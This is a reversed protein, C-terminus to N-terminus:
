RYITHLLFAWEPHSHPPVERPEQPDFIDQTNDRGNHWRCDPNGTDIMAATEAHGDTFAYNGQGQHWFGFWGGYQDQASLINDTVRLDPYRDRTETLLITHSTRRVAITPRKAEEDDLKIRWLLHGNLAWNSTVDGVCLSQQDVTGLESLPDTPPPAPCTWIDGRPLYNKQVFNHRWTVHQGPAVNIRNEPLEGKHDAAFAGVAAATQRINSLCKVTRAQQRAASLAPLTLSILLSIIAIVVLLEILTFARTRSPTHPPTNM